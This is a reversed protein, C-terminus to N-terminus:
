RNRHQNKEWEPKVSSATENIRASPIKKESQFSRFSSRTDAPNLFSGTKHSEPHLISSNHTLFLITQDPGFSFNADLAKPVNLFQSSNTM